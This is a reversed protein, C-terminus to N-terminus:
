GSLGTYKGKTKDALIIGFGLFVMVFGSGLIYWNVKAVNSKLRLSADYITGYKQSISCQVYYYGDKEIDFTQLVKFLRNRHNRSGSKSIKGKKKWLVRSDSNQIEVEYEANMIEGCSIDLIARLPNMETTLRVPEMEMRKESSEVPEAMGINIGKECVFVFEERGSFVATYVTYPLVILLGAIILFIALKKM